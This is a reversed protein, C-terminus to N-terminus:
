MWGCVPVFGDRCASSLEVWMENQPEWVLPAYTQQNQTGGVLCCSHCGDRVNNIAKEGIMGRIEAASAIVDKTPYAKMVSQQFFGLAVKSFIECSGPTYRFNNAFKWARWFEKFEGDLFDIAFVHLTDSAGITPWQIVSGSDVYCREYFAQLTITM